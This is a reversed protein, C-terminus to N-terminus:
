LNIEKKRNRKLIIIKRSFYQLGNIENISWKLKEGQMYIKSIKM